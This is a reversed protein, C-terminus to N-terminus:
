QLQDLGFLSRGAGRADIPNVGDVTRSPAALKEGKAAAGDLVERQRCFFTLMRDKEWRDPHRSYALRFAEVAQRSPDAGAREIVRGAFAQAWELSEDSNLMTLAQPATITQTRRSCSEHSEPM